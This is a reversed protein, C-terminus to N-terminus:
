VDKSDTIGKALLYDDSLYKLKVRGIKPSMREKELGIVVGEKIHDANALVTNGKSLEKIVGMNFPGRYLEPVREVGYKDCTSVFGEYDLYKGDVLLDFARFGIANKLGYNLNQIRSGFIEGFLIVQQSQEGLETVLNKVSPISNLPFWYTSTESPKRRIEMSGAMLEGQIWGVRGNTGHIKETVVVPEGEEIEAPFNRLNEIDTYKEFLAHPTDADGASITIPPEYKTIGFYEAVNDGVKWEPNEPPILVGYSPEGRLRACRVRGKSLYKTVGWKDSWEIPILSDIPIYVIVDGVEYTENTVCQWGKVEVINLADANPHKRFNDIQCVEVILSAM